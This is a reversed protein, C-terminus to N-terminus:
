KLVVFFLVAFFHLLSGILVFLHWITHHYPLRRWAYFILGSTYVAGGSIVLALGGPSLSGILPKAAIAILWGMAIYLVMSVVKLRDMAASTTIIGLVAMGWVLGFLVWGWAGRLTVLTFPTYTGAILLYIASHDLVRLVRKSRPCPIAHYLTSALYLLVLTTGFISVGVISWPDGRLGALTALVALGAISLALGVGHTVSNAIEEGLSYRGPAQSSSM